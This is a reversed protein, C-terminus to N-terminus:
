WNRRWRGDSQAHLMARLSSMHADKGHTAIGLGSGAEPAERALSIQWAGVQVMQGVIRGLREQLRVNGLVGSSSM